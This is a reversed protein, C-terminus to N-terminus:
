DTIGFYATLKYLSFLRLIAPSAGAVKFSCNKETCHKYLGVLLNVGLSDMVSVDSINVVVTNCDTHNGLLGQIHALTQSTNAAVLDDELTIQLTDGEVQQLM